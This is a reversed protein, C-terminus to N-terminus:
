KPKPPRGRKKKTEEKTAIESLIEDAEKKDTPVEKILAYKTPQNLYIQKMYDNNATVTVLTRLNLFKM